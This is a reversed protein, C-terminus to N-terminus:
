KRQTKRKKSQKENSKKKKPRKKKSRKDKPRKKKPKKKRSRKKKASGTPVATAVAYSPPLDEVPVTPVATAVAYSPPLDEVPVTPVATAVADPSLSEEVSMSEAIPMGNAKAYKKEQQTLSSKNGNCYVLNTRLVGNNGRYVDIVGKKWLFSLKFNVSPPSHPIKIKMDAYKKFKMNGLNIGNRISKIKREISELKTNLSVRYKRVLPKKDGWIILLYVDVANQKSPSM